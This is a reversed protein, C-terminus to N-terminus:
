VSLHPASANKGGHRLEYEALIGWGCGDLSRLDKGTCIGGRHQLRHTTHTKQASALTGTFLKGVVRGLFLYHLGVNVVM